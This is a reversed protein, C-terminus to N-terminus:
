ILSKLRNIVDESTHGDYKSNSEEVQFYDVCRDWYSNPLHYSIQEEKGDKYYNIALIFWGDWEKGEKNKKTCIIEFRPFKDELVECLTIFLEHRHKYLEEFTHYGDSINSKIFPNVKSEREIIDNIGQASLGKVSFSENGILNDIELNSKHRLIDKISENKKVEAKFYNIGDFSHITEEKDNMYLWFDNLLNYQDETFKFTVLKNWDSRKIENFKNDRYMEVLEKIEEETLKLRKGNSLLYDKM